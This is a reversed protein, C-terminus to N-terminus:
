NAREGGLIDPLITSAEIAMSREFNSRTMMVVLVEQAPQGRYFTIRMMDDGDARSFGGESYIVPAKPNETIDPHRMLAHDPLIITSM